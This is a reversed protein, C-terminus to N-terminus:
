RVVVVGGRRARVPGTAPCGDEGEAAADPWVGAIGLHDSGGRGSHGRCGSCVAAVGPCPGRGRGEAASVCGGRPAPKFPDIRWAPHGTRAAPVTADRGNM